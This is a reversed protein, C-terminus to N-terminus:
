STPFHALARPPPPPAAWSGANRVFIAGGLIAPSTNDLELLDWRVTGQVSTLQCNFFLRGYRGGLPRFREDFLTPEAVSGHIQTWNFSWLRSVCGMCGAYSGVYSGPAIGGLVAARDCAVEGFGGILSDVDSALNQVAVAPPSEPPRDALILLSAEVSLVTAALTAGAPVHVVTKCLAFPNGKVRVLGLQPVAPLDWRLAPTPVYAVLPRPPCARTVDVIVDAGAVAPVAPWAEPNPLASLGLASCAAPPETAEASAVPPACLIWNLADSANYVNVADSAVAAAPPQFVYIPPAGQACACRVGVVAVLAIIPLLRWLAM